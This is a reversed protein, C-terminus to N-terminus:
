WRYTKGAVTFTLEYDTAWFPVPHEARYREYSAPEMWKNLWYTKEPGAALLGTRTKPNVLALTIEPQLAQDPWWFKERPLCATFANYLERAGMPLFSRDPMPRDRTARRYVGVEAGVGGPFDTRAFFQPCFGKWPQIVAPQGDIVAEFVATAYGPWEMAAFCPLASCLTKWEPSTADYAYGHRDRTVVTPSM